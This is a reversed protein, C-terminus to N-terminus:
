AGGQKGTGHCAGCRIWTKRTVGGSSTDATKGGAGQCTTCAASM